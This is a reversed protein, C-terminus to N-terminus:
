TWLVKLVVLSFEPIKGYFVPIKGPYVIRPSSGNGPSFWALYFYGNEALLHAMRALM